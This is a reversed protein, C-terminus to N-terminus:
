VSTSSECGCSGCWPHRKVISYREKGLITDPIQVAPFEDSPAYLNLTEPNGKFTSSCELRATAEQREVLVAYGASM